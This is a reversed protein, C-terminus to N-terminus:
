ARYPWPDYHHIERGHRIWTERNIESGIYQHTVLPREFYRWPVDDRIQHDIHKQRERFNETLWFLVPRPIYYGCTTSTDTSPETFVIKHLEQVLGGLADPFDDVLVADDEFVMVGPANGIAYRAVQWALYHSLWCGAQGDTEAGGTSAFQHWIPDIGNIRHWDLHPFRKINRETFFDLRDGRRPLTIWFLPIM